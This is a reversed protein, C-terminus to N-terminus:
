FFCKMGGRFDRGKCVLEQFPYTSKLIYKYCKKTVSLTNKVFVIKYNEHDILFFCFCFFDFSFLCFLVLCFFTIM